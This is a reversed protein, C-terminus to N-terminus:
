SLKVYLRYWYRQSSPASTVTTRLSWVVRSSIASEAGSLITTDGPGHVGSCAPMEM